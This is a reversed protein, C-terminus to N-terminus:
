LRAYARGTNLKASPRTILEDPLVSCIGAFFDNLIGLLHKSGSDRLKYRFRDFNILLNKVKVIPVKLEKGDQIEESLVLPPSAKVLRSVGASLVALTIKNIKKANAIVYFKAKFGELKEEYDALWVLLEKNETFLRGEKDIPELGELDSLKVCWLFEGRTFPCNNGQAVLDELSSYTVWRLSIEEKDLRGKNKAAYLVANEVTM